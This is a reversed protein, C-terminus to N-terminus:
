FRGAEFKKPEKAYFKKINNSKREEGDKEYTHVGVRCRGTSGPVLNWNMRLPKDKEKQGIASFFSSLMGETISHLFLNHTIISVGEEGEVRIKLVAKNCAPLKASGPHRAREYSEVYFDYDGEPLLVFDSGDKTIEDDWGLERELNDAM